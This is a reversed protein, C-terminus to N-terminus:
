YIKTKEYETNRELHFFMDVPSSKSELFPIESLALSRRDLKRVAQVHLPM